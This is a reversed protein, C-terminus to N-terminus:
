CCRVTFTEVVGFPTILAPALVGRKGSGLERSGSEILDAAHIDDVQRSM